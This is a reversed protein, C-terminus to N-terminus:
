SIDSFSRNHDCTVNVDWVKVEIRLYLAALLLDQKEVGGNPKVSLLVDWLLVDLLVTFM